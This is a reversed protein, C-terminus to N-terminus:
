ALRKDYTHYLLRGRGGLSEAFRRSATNAENVPYYLAGGLGLEEYRRYLTAALTQGIHKGCHEPLVVINILGARRFCRAGLLLRIIQVPGMKGKFSRFLPTWDPLGFCNGAPEGDVEAFLFQQPDLVPKFQDFFERFEAISFRQMEWEDSGYGENFLYLLTEMEEKWRKKNVPRVHCRADKIARRSVTRYEESSFDIEYYWLPYSPLYGAEELYGAYYPPHWPFPFMPDEDFAATLLSGGLFPAGNVPALVRTVVRAALWEEARGLMESVERGARPAAAFYGIFGASEGHSEQYRRNVFAACRAIDRGNAAVFLAHEMGKYFASRGSLRKKLDADAESIFLPGAGVLDRELRIFAKLADADSPSVERVPM